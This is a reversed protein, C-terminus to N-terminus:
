LFGIGTLMWGGEVTREAVIGNRKSAAFENLVKYVIEIRGKLPSYLWCSTQSASVEALVLLCPIGGNRHSFNWVCLYTDLVIFLYAYSLDWFLSFYILNPITYVLVRTTASM